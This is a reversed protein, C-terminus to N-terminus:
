FVRPRPCVELVLDIEAHRARMGYIASYQVNWLGGSASIRSRVDAITRGTGVSDDVVLVNEWADANAKIRAKKRRIGPQLGRGQLLGDVDTLAVNRHLALMSAPIMGSRPVGVVVDIDHPVRHLNRRITQAM